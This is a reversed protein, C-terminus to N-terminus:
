EAQGGDEPVQRAGSLRGVPINDMQLYGDKTLVTETPDTVLVTKNSQFAAKYEKGALTDLQGVEVTRTEEDKRLVLYPHAVPSVDRSSNNFRVRFWLVQGCEVSM